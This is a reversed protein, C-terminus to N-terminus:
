FIWSSVSDTYGNFERVANRKSIGGLFIGPEGPKTKICRGSSNRIPEGSKKDCTVLAVPHFLKAFNPIFGVAGVKGDFNIM